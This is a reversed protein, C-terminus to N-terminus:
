NAQVFVISYIPSAALQWVGSISVAQMYIDCMGPASLDSSGEEPFDM